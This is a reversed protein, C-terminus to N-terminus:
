NLKSQLPVKFTPQRGDSPQSTFNQGTDSSLSRKILLDIGHQLDVLTQYVDIANSQADLENRLQQTLSRKKLIENIMNHNGM